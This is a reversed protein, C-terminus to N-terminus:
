QINALLNKDDSKQKEIGNIVFDMGHRDVPGAKIISVSRGNEDVAPLEHSIGVADYVVVPQLNLPKDGKVHKYISIPNAQRAYRVTTGMPTYAANLAPTQGATLVEGKVHYAHILQAGHARTKNYAKLTNPHLGSGNFSFGPSNTVISGASTLGGGLSHGSIELHNGIVQKTKRALRMARDYQESEFGVGQQFNNKWGAKNATGRFALVKSGDIESDYLAARFGSKNHEWVANKLAPPLDAPNDSSRKWGIPPDQEGSDNYVDQALRAREVARNNLELRDAAARIKDRDEGTSVAARERGKGILAQREVLRQKKAELALTRQTEPRADTPLSFTPADNILKSFYDGLLGKEALYDMNQRWMERDRQKNGAVDEVFPADTEQASAFLRAQGNGIIVNGSGQILQGIGGCHLTTDDFRAVPQGNASVGPAGAVSVWRNLGCCLAHVGQDGVRLLPKGNATVDTSGQTAPGEVSHPCATCGHADLPCKSKDGLRAAGPM